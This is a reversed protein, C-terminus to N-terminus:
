QWFVDAAKFRKWAKRLHREREETRAAHFGLVLGAARRVAVAHAGDQARAIVADLQIPAQAVDNNAGLASQVQSLAKLYRDTKKTGFLSSFLEAAYREKKVAIRLRHREAITMHRLHKGADCLRKHRRKLAKRAYAIATGMMVQDAEDGRSGPARALAGILDILAAFSSARVAARAESWRAERASRATEALAALDRDDPVADRVPALVEALFVDGDRAPGLPTNVVRVAEVLEARRRLPLFKKYLSLIARLRRLAVRLQHISEPDSGSLACSGNWAIDDACHMLNEALAEAASARRRLNPARSKRPGERAPLPLPELAHLPVIRVEAEAASAGSAAPLEPSESPRNSTM